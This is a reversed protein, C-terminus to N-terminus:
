KSAGGGRERRIRRWEDRLEADMEEPWDSDEMLQDESRFRCWWIREGWVIFHSECGTRRWVSPMLTLGRTDLRVKWAPAVAADANIVLLDGCGCPCEFVVSRTRGGRVVVAASGVRAAVLARAERQGEVVQVRSFELRPM